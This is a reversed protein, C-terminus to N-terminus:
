GCLEAAIKKCIGAFSEESLATGTKRSFLGWEREVPQGPIEIEILTGAAVDASALWPSVLGVGLGIKSMEKIAGMNGLEMISAPRIGLKGFGREILRFTTSKRSYIIYRQNQLDEEPAVGGAAWPHDPAVVFVIRDRFLPKFHFGTDGRRSAMALALDIEGAELLDMLEHSDAAQVSVDCNPSNTRFERLAAPLLYECMTDTAGLRLRGHGWKALAQLEATARGMEGLIRDARRRLAEGEATLAIKKGGRELLGCDLSAELAKISHSIASQTLYMRRAAETFSGTEALLQFARLQRIDILEM